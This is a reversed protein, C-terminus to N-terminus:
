KVWLWTGLPSLFQAGLRSYINLVPTNEVSFRAHGVRAGMRAYEVICRQYLYMGSITAERSLMALELNLGAGTMQSLFWGQVLGRAVVRLCWEPSTRLQHDAWRAYRDTLRSHDMAPLHRYREHEFTALEDPEIRFPMDSAREIALGELSETAPVRQCAIRFLVQTDAQFFGAAAIQRLPATTLQARLEVWEFQRLANLREDVGADAFREVDDVIGVPGGWWASNFAHDRIM